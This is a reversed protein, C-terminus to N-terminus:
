LLHKIGIVSVLFNILYPKAAVTTHNFPTKIVGFKGAMSAQWKNEIEPQLLNTSKIVHTMQARQEKISQKRLLPVQLM